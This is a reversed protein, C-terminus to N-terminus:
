DPLADVRGGGTVAQVYDREPAQEGGAVGMGLPALAERLRIYGLVDNYGIAEEIFLLKYEALEGMYSAANRWDGLNQNADTLLLADEGDGVADHGADALDERAGGTM